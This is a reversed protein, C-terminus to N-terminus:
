SWDDPHPRHLNPNDHFEGSEHLKKVTERYLWLAAIGGAAASVAAMLGFRLWKSRGPRANSADSYSASKIKSLDDKEM